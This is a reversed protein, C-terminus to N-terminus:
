KNERKYWEVFRKIGEEMNIKPHYGL